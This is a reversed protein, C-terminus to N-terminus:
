SKADKACERCYHKSPDIGKIWGRAKAKAWLTSWGVGAMTKGCSDCTITTSKM